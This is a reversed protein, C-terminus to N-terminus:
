RFKYLINELEIRNQMVEQIGEIARIQGPAQHRACHIAIEHGRNYLDVIEDASLHNPKGVFSSPVNFTCKINHRELIEALRIDSKVSDDYSFTVAKQKGDPFRIFRYQEM